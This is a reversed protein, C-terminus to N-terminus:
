EPVAIEFTTVTEVIGAARAQALQQFFTSRPTDCLKQALGFLEETSIEWPGNGHRKELEHQIATFTKRVGRGIHPKM